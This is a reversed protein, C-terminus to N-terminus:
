GAEVKEARKEEVKEPSGAGSSDVRRAGAGGGGGAGVVAVVNPLGFM